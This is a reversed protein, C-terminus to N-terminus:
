KKLVTDGLVFTHNGKQSIKQMTELLQLFQVGEDKGIIESANKFARASAVATRSNELDTRARVKSALESAFIEQIAKPFTIDILSVKKIIIGLSDAMDKILDSIMKEEILKRNSNIEQSPIESITQRVQEQLSKLLIELGDTNNMWKEFQRLSTLSNNVVFKEGDNIQYTLHQSIRLSINDNTLVEQNVISAGQDAVPLHYVDITDFPQFLHYVGPQLKSHFVKNKYLYGLTQPEILIKQYMIIKNYYQTSPVVSYM